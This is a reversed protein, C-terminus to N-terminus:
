NRFEEERVIDRDKLVGQYNILKTLEIFVLDYLLDHGKQSLTFGDEGIYVTDNEKQIITHFLDILPCKQDKAVEKMIYVYQKLRNNTRSTGTLVENVPTPTILLPIPICGNLGTRNNHNKILMIIDQLNREFAELSTLSNSHSCTDHSSLSIFVINPNHILVKETLKKLMEKTTAGKLAANYIKWSIAPYYTSLHNDLRNIYTETLRPYMEGYGVITTRIM